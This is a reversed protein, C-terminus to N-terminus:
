GIEQPLRHAFVGHAPIYISKAGSQAGACLGCTRCELEKDNVNPCLLLGATPQEAPHVIQFVRWGLRAAATAEDFGHVSAMLFDRAFQMRPLEWQHTYGLWTWRQGTTDAARAALYDRRIGAVVSRPIAGPDGDGTMRLSRARAICDRFRAANYPRYWGARYTRWIGAVATGREGRAYCGDSAPCGGCLSYHLGQDDDYGKSLAPHHDRPLIWITVCDGTKKNESEMTAICVINLSSDFLSPGEYLIV